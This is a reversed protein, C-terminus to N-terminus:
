SGDSQTVAKSFFERLSKTHAFYPNRAAEPNLALIAATLTGADALARLIREKERDGHLGANFELDVRDLERGLANIREQDGAVNDSIFAWIRNRYAAQSVDRGQYSEARARFLVDALREIYRRGSLAAQAVHDSHVATRLAAVASGLANFLGPHLDELVMVLEYGADEGGELFPTVAVRFDHVQEFHALTDFDDFITGHAGRDEWDIDTYGREAMAEPEISNRYEEDSMSYFIRVASGRIRYLTIMSNRYLALHPGFTYDVSQLGLYSTDASLAAHLQEAVAQTMNEFVVATVTARRFTARLREEHLLSWAPYFYVREVLQDYNAHGYTLVDGVSVKMHRNSAQLIGTKFVVDKIPEGYSCGFKPDDANFLLAINM